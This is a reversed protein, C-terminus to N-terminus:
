INKELEIKSLGVSTYSELYLEDCKKAAELAGLTINDKNIGFGVLYLMNCGLFCWKFFQKKYIKDRKDFDLFYIIDKSKDYSYILRYPKIYIKREFKRYKLFEGIEPNDIIKKIQKAIKEKLNGDKIHKLVRDFEKSRKTIRKGM